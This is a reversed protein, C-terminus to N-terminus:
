AVSRYGAQMDEIGSVTWASGTNPDTPFVFNYNQFGARLSEASALYNTGNAFNSGGSRILAKIGSPGSQDVMARIGVTVARVAFAAATASPNAVLYSQDAAASAVNDTLTDDIALANVNTYLGSWGNNAGAGIVPLTALRLGLTALADDLVIEYFAGVLFRVKNITAAGGQTTDGTFNAVESGARYATARGTSANIEIRLDFTDTQNASWAGTWSDIQVWSSGNWYQWQLGSGFIGRLRFVETDNNDFFSVYSGNVIASDRLKLHTWLTTVGSALNLQSYARGSVGGSIFGGRDYDADSVGAQSVGGPSIEFFSERETAAFIVTM